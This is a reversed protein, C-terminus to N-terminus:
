GPATEIPKVSLQFGLSKMVATITSLTPNGEPSFAQYITERSLGANRAITSLNRSRAVDGIASAIIRPDGSEFADGSIRRHTRRQQPNRRRRVTENSYGDFSRKWRSRFHAGGYMKFNKIASYIRSPRPKRQWSPLARHVQAQFSPRRTRLTAPAMKFATRERTLDIDDTKVAPINRLGSVALTLRLTFGLLILRTVASWSRGSLATVAKFVLPAARVETLTARRCRNTAATRWWSSAAVGRFLGQILGDPIRLGSVGEGM